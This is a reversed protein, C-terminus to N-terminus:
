DEELEAIRARLEAVKRDMYRLTLLLGAEQAEDRGVEADELEARLQVVRDEISDENDQSEDELSKIRLALIPIIRAQNELVVPNGVESAQQNLRLAKSYFARLGPLDETSTLWFQCTLCVNAHDCNGLLLIRGCGGLPLTQGRIGKRLMQVDLDNARIDGTVIQGHYNVTKRKRRAREFEERIVSNRKRAYIKTMEVSSHGLLRAIVELPVDNNILRMGVSHRFQHSQFRYLSGADDRIEKERAWVNLRRTFVSYHFPFASDRVRPFLYPCSEGWQKRMDQQQAQILSVIEEDILPVVHEQKLKMQYFYLSWEQKENQRLCDLSLSCLECIRMGTELLVVVMRLMMTDLSDLHKRLQMLVGEPIERSAGMDQKPLDDGFILRERPVGKINLQHACTELFIRLEILRGFRSKSKLDKTRLFGIYEIILNRNIASISADPAHTELFQSFKSLAQLAQVCSGTSCISIRYEMFKKALQRLWPQLILTFNLYRKGRVLNVALGMECMDWTDKELAPRDDYADRITIYLRRFFLIRDDEKRYEAYEQSALLTKFSSYGLRGVEALYTRLQIVWAEIEREMLSQIQPTFSDLWSLVSSLNTCLDRNDKNLKRRGSKFMQWVAYKIEIKLSTSVVTFRLYRFKGPKKSSHFQWVDNTWSDVLQEQLRRQKEESWSAQSCEEPPMKNAAEERGHM